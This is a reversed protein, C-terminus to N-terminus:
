LGRRRADESLERAIREPALRRRLEEVNDDERVAQRHVADQLGELESEVHGLRAELDELRQKWAQEPAGAGGRREWRGRARGALRRVAAQARTGARRAGGADIQMGM